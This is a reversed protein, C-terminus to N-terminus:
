GMVILFNGAPCAHDSGAGSCIMYYGARLAFHRNLRYEAGFRVQWTIRGLWPRVGAAYAEMLDAWISGSLYKLSKLQSWDSWGADANLTLREVPKVSVGGGIFWPWKIERRVESSDTTMVSLSYM